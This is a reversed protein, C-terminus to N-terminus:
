RTKIQRRTRQDPTPQDPHSRLIMHQQHRHVVDDRVAPRHPHQRPLQAREVLGIRRPALIGQRRQRHLVRVIRGPLPLPQRALDQAPLRVIPAPRQRPSRRQQLQRRVTPTRRLLVIAAVQHPQLQVRLQRRFQLRQAAPM